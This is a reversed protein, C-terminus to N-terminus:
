SQCGVVEDLGEFRLLGLRGAAEWERDAGPSRSIRVLGECHRLWEHDYTLYFEYPLGQGMTRQARKEVWHTLHPIYPMHGAAILRLGADIAAHVNDLVAEPTEATYAGAIYIKM